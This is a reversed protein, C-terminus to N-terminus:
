VYVGGVSECITTVTNCVDDYSYIALCYDDGLSFFFIPSLFLFCRHAYSEYLHITPREDYYDQSGDDVGM